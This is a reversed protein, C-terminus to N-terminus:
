ENGLVSGKVDVLKFLSFQCKGPSHLIAFDSRRLLNDYTNTVSIGNM